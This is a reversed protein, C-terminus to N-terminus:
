LSINCCSVSMLNKVNNLLVCIVCVGIRTRIFNFSEFKIPKTLVDALQEQTICYKMEITGDITLDRLFHFMVDIHKCRRYMLPNKSLKITSSNDCMIITGQSQIQGVKHLISQLWMRQCACSTTAVFEVGTSSLTVIPQKKSSWSILSSGLKFM